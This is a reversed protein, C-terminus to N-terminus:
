SNPQWIYVFITVFASILQMVRNILRLFLIFTVRGPKLFIKGILEQEPLVPRIKSCYIIKWSHSINIGAYNVAIIRTEFYWRSLKAKVALCHVYSPCCIFSHSSVKSWCYGMECNLVYILSPELFFIYCAILLPPKDLDQVFTKKLSDAEHDFSFITSFTRSNNPDPVSIADNLWQGGEQSLTRIERRARKGPKSGGPNNERASM